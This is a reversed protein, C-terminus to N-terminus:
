VQLIENENELSDEEMAAGFFLFTLVVFTAFSYFQTSDFSFNM